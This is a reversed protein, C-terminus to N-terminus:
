VLGQKFLRECKSLKKQAKSLKIRWFWRTLFTSRVIKLQYDASKSTFKHNKIQFHSDYINKFSKGFETGDQESKSSSTTLDKTFEKTLQTM